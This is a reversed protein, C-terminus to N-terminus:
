FVLHVVSTVWVVVVNVLHHSLTEQLLSCQCMIDQLLSCQCMIDRVTLSMCMAVVYVCVTLIQFVNVRIIIVVLSVTM